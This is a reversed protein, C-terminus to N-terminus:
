SIDVMIIKQNYVDLRSVSIKFEGYDETLKKNDEIGKVTNSLWEGGTWAPYFDLLIVKLIAVTRSLYEPIAPVMFEMRTVPSDYCMIFFMKDDSAGAVKIQTRKKKGKGVKVRKRAYSMASPLNRSILFQIQKLPLPKM